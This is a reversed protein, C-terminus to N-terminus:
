KVESVTYVDKVRLRKRADAHYKKGGVELYDFPEDYHNQLQVSLVGQLMQGYVVQVKEDSAATVSAMRKAKLPEADTYDGTEADYTGEGERCFYVPYDYRM